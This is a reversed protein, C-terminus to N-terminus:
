SGFIFLERRTGQLKAEDFSYLSDRSDKVPASSEAAAPAGGGYAADAM